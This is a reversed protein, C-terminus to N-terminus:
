AVIRDARVFGADEIMRIDLEPNRGPTTLYDGIMLGTVGACLAAGRMDRLNDERGGCLVVETEPMILRSLAIIKLCEVPEPGCRDGLPTGKIPVLFNLPVSDPAIGALCNLFEMRQEWSEGMGFIGGCCTELGISKAAEMSEIDQEYDHTTCIKKFFSPATELNHHYRTLGADKLKELGRGDIVGVSACARLGLECIVAVSEAVSDIEEGTLALGSTVISFRIAGDDRARKAAAGIKEKSLLPYEPAGTDYHVSQACFACDETCRGSRANIIACLSIERGTNDVRLRNAAAMLEMVGPMGMDGILGADRRTIPGGRLLSEELENFWQRDM